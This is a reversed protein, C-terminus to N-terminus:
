FTGQQPDSPVCSKKTKNDLLLKAYQLFFFAGRVDGRPHRSQQHFVYM